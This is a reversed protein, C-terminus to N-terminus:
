KRKNDNRVLSEVARRKAEAQTIDVGNRAAQERLHRGVREATESPSRPM